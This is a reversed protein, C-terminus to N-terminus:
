ILMIEILSGSCKMQFLRQLQHQVQNEVQIKIIAGALIARDQTTVNGNIPGSTVPNGTSQDINWGPGPVIATQFSNSIYEGSLLQYAVMDKIWGTKIGSISSGGQSFTSTGNGTGAPNAINVIWYDGVTFGINAKFKFKYIIDNIDPGSGMITQDTLDIDSASKLIQYGSLTSPNRLEDVRYRPVGTTPNPTTIIIKLRYDRRIGPTPAYEYPAGPTTIVTLSNTDSVNSQGYYIPPNAVGQRETLYDFSKYDL